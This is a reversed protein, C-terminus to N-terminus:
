KYSDIILDLLKEGFSKSFNNIIKFHDVTLSNINM